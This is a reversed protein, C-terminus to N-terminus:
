QVSSLDRTLRTAEYRGEMALFGAVDASFDGSLEGEETLSGETNVPLAFWQLDISATGALDGEDNELDFLYNTDLDFGLLSLLCGADGTAARGEADVVLTLAGSCGLSLAQGNYDGSATIALDGVYVGAYISQVLVGGVTYALRDGNPLLAEATLAHTGVELSDDDVSAGALAWGEDLDSAWTIGEFDKPQGDAGYVVAHFSASEEYPLFSASLPSEIVLRAGDWELDLAAQEADAGTDDLSSGGGSEGDVILTNDNCAFLLVLSIM